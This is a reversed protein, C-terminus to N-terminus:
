WGNSATSWSASAAPSGPLRTGAAARLRRIKRVGGQRGAGMRQARFADARQRCIRHDAQVPRDQRDTGAHHLRGAHQDQRAGAADEPYPKKLVWRFTRDDVATLEQEIAKLMLGMQDRAAWRNLSAM